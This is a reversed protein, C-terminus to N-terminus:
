DGKMEPPHAPLDEKVQEAEQDYTPVVYDPQSYDIESRLLKGSVIRGIGERTELQYRGSSTQLTGFTQHKGVTFTFRHANSQDYLIGTITRNGSATMAVDEIRGPLSRDEQPIYLSIADGANFGSLDVLRIGRGKGEIEGEPALLATADGVPTQQSADGATRPNVDSVSQSNGSFETVEPRNAGLYVFGAVGALFLALGAFFYGPKM